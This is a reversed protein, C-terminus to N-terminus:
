SLSFVDLLIECAKFHNCWLRCFRIATNVYNIYILDCCFGYCTTTFRAYLTVNESHTLLAFSQFEAKPSLKHLGIFSLTQASRKHWVHRFLEFNKKGSLFLFLFKSENQLESGSPMKWSHPSAVSCDFWCTRLLEVAWRKALVFKPSGSVHEWM